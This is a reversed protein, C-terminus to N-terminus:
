AITLQSPKIKYESLIQGLEQTFQDRRHQYQDRMFADEQHLEIMQDVSQIQELLDIVRIARENAIEPIKM